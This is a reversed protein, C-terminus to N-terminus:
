APHYGRRAYVRLGPRAVRVDIRRWVGDHSPSPVYGINYRTRLAHGITASARAVERQVSVRFGIGGTASSIDDLLSLGRARELLETAGHAPSSDILGISYIQADSEMLRAMLEARAHRSHNDMGDSVVILAKRSHTGSRLRDVSTYITDILATSGGANTLTFPRLISDIDRTFPAYTGPRTSVTDVFAEDDPNADGLVARLADRAEGLVSIMSGSMDFVVGISVSAEDESFCSIDRRVGNEAVTFDNQTLDTVTAGRRDLVTVPVLVLRSEAHFASDASPGRDPAKVATGSVASLATVSWV